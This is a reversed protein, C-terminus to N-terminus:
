ATGAQVNERLTFRARGIAIEDGDELFAWVAPAGNVSVADRGEITHLVVRDEEAWISVAIETDPAPAPAVVDCTEGTGVVIARAGLAVAGNEGELCIALPTAATAKRGDERPAPQALPKPTSAAEATATPPSEKPPARRPLVAAPPTEIKPEAPAAKIKGDARRPSGEGRTPDLSAARNELLPNAAWAKVGRWGSAAVGASWRGVSSAAGGLMLSTRSPPREEQEAPLDEEVPMAAPPEAGRLKRYADDLEALPVAADPGLRGRLRGRTYRYAIDIVEDSAVISVGLLRCPDPPAEEPKRRGLVRGFGRGVLGSERPPSSTQLEAGNVDLPSAGGTIDGYARNLRDLAEEADPQPAKVLDRVAAWYVEVVLELPATDLLGLAEYPSEPQTAATPEESAM